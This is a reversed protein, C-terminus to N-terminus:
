TPRSLAHPVNYDLVLITFRECEVAIIMQRCSVGALHVARPVLGLADTPMHPMPRCRGSRTCALLGVDACVGGVHVPVGRVHRVRVRVCRSTRRAARRM